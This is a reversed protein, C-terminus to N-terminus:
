GMLCLMTCSVGEKNGHISHTPPNFWFSLVHGRVSRQSSYLSPSKGRVHMFLDLSPARVHGWVLVQFSGVLPEVRMRM